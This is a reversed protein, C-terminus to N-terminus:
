LLNGPVIGSKPIIMQPAALVNQLSEQTLLEPLVPYEVLGGSKCPYDDTKKKEPMKFEANM